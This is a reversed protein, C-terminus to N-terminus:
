ANSSSSAISAANILSNQTLTSTGASTDITFSVLIYNLPWPPQYAFRVEIVTPDGAPPTQERVVLGSYGNILGNTIALELAGSVVGKVNLSTQAGIPTGILGSNDLTEQILYYLADQARVLSIERTMVGDLFDTTLGHRVVLRNNRDTTAICIGSSSLDNMITPTLQQQMAAPIGIFGIPFKRTLPMQPVQSALLGAYAAALYWGDVIITANTVGNYVQLQNPWPVVIRSCSTTTGVTALDTPSPAYTQDLGCIAMRLFGAAADNEILGKMNQLLGEVSNLTNIGPWIPVIVNAAYNGALKAYATNFQNTVSGVGDTAIAYLFNAGNQIAFQAALTLPSSIAGTIPNYAPGYAEVFSNYNDFPTLASYNADTYQYTVTVVPNGIEIDGASERGITTVSHAAGASTDQTVSYDNPTGSVDAVFVQPITQGSNSPDTIFGSVVITSPNIGKQTLVVSSASAFSISEIYTHYGIGQGILCVV